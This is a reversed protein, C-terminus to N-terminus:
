RLGVQGAPRLLLAGGSRQYLTVAHLEPQAGDWFRPLVATTLLSPVFDEWILSRVNEPVIFNPEVEALAYPLGSLSGALHGGGSSGFLNVLRPGIWAEGGGTGM